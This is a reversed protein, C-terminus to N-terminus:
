RVATGAMVADAKQWTRLGFQTGTPATKGKAAALDALNNVRLVETGNVTAVFQEGVMSVSIQNDVMPNFGAPFNSMALTTEAGDNWIKLAFRNGMGPDVQFTYGSPVTKTSTNPAARLWIGYGYGTTEPPLVLRMTSTLTIDPNTWPVANVVSTSQWANNAPHSTAITTGSIAATGSLVSWDAAALTRAQPQAPSPTPTPETVPQSGAPVSGAGPDGGTTSAAEQVGSGAVVTEGPQAGSPTGSTAGGAGAAGSGTGSDGGTTAQQGGAGAAEAPAAGAALADADAAQSAAALSAAVPSMGDSVQRGLLAVSALSVIAIGGIILGYEVATAGRDSGAIGRRAM